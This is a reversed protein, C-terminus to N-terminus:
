MPKGFAGTRRLGGNRRPIALVDHWCKGRKLFGAIGETDCQGLEKCFTVLRNRQCLRLLLKPIAPYPQVFFLLGNDKGQNTLHLFLAQGIFRVPESVTLFSHQLAFSISCCPLALPCPGGRTCYVAASFVQFDLSKPRLQMKISDFHEASSATLFTSLSKKSM